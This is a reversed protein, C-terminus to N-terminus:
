PKARKPIPKPPPPPRPEIRGTIRLVAADIVDEDLHTEIRDALKEMSVAVREFGAQQRTLVGDLVLILRWALFAGVGAQAVFRTLSRIEKDGNRKAQTWAGVITHVGLRRKGTDDDAM